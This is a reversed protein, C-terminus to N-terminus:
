KKKRKFLNVIKQQDKKEILFIAPISNVLLIIVVNIVLSKWTYVPIWLRLLFGTIGTVLVAILGTQLVPRMGQSYAIGLVKSVYKPYITSYLILQPAATAIAMGILGYPKILILALLIKGAVELGLVGLLYRHKDLGLLVSNGLIQPLYFAGSIALIQMVRAAPYFEVPLWLSIFQEAYLVIGTCILFSPYATYKLARLYLRGITELDTTVELHSVAPTLPIGIANVMMRLHYMAQVAPNFVGAAASSSIIGLLLSDSNFLLVWALSIGFATKSYAFLSRVMSGDVFKFSSQIEGHLRKLVIVAVIQKLANAILVAQALEVLGYGKFLLTVMALTRFIEESINLLNAIDQRHFAVFSGGFPLMVFRIGVFIALIGMATAGEAALSPSDIKFIDFYHISFLYTLAASIIAIGLYFLTSTNLVRNVKDFNKEGLYRSVFRVVAANMGLDLLTFYSVAQFIIVWVGYRSDGLISTIFPVFFFAIVLRVAHAYWSSFINLLFQRSFSM